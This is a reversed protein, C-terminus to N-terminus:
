LDGLEHGGAVVEILELKGKGGEILKFEQPFWWDGGCFCAGDEEVGEGGRPGCM